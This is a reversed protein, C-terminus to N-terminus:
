WGDPWFAGSLSSGAAGAPEVVGRPSQTVGSDEGTFVRPVTNIAKGADDPAVDPVGPDASITGSALATLTAMADQYALLVPDLPSAFAKNKRYIMTAYYVAVPVTVSFILDPVPVPGSADDAFVEGAYSSVKASARVIASTLQDDTLQACTGTGEDTGDVAERVDAPTCYTVSV